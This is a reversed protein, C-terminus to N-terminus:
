RCLFDKFTTYEHSLISCINYNKFETVFSNKCKDPFLKKHSPDSKQQEQMMM